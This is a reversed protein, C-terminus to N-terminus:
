PAAQVRWVAGNGDESVLLAGDKAVAVGVPRGWVREADLVFGTMFDEYEGTPAGGDDTVIRVVKYGTLAGRNWSGHLAAFGDGRYEDPFTDGEYFVISLPASHPQLLVDPVTVKGNLDPRAGAHRPDENDGIYYWPWGYFGGRAIRSVYDPPLNDGLGDRENTACWLEGTAPQITLGSCNRIGNAFSRGNRGAPDFSMVAARGLEAGWAAGLGLAEELRVLEDPAIESLGEAVNSRSGVALLMEKGDPTFAIDRTSHGGDPIGALITEAPGSAVTDGVAYPFRVVRTTEAVYVWEPSPGPPYFAIGYPYGFGGAFVSREVSGDDNRRLVLVRGAGSEALFIDGNPAVRLTRPRELGDALLEVSFGSPVTPVAGPPPAVITGRGAQSPSAYPQPLDAPTIFRRVGPADTSWDGFAAEGTLVNSDQALVPGAVLAVLPMLLRLAM